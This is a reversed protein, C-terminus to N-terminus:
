VKFLQNFYPIMVHKDEMKRRTNKIAHVSTQPDDLVTLTQQDLSYIANIAETFVICRLSDGSISGVVCTVSAVGPSFCFRASLLWSIIVNKRNQSLM